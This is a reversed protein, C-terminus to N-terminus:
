RGEINLELSTVATTGDTQKATVQITSTGTPGFDTTIGCGIVGIMSGLLIIIVLVNGLASRLKRRQYFLWSGLLTSPLFFFGALVAKSELSRPQRLDATSTGPGRTTITLTTVVPATEGNMTFTAPSFNCATMQPLGSCSFTINGKYGDSPVLTAKVVGTQGLRLSLNTVNLSLSLATAKPQETIITQSSSFNQDGAYIAYITHDGETINAVTLAATGQANLPETGLVTAGDLFQVTGTPAGSTTSAVTATLTFSGGPAPNANSTKLAVTSPAKDVTLVGNLVTVAYNNLNAGTVVPVITYSGAISALTVTTTFTETLSDGNVTGVITGTFQPNATGYVRSVNQASVELPAPIVRLVTTQVAPQYDGTDAPTFTATLTYTGAPLTIAPSIVLTNGGAKQATYSFQGPVTSGQRTSATANLVSSLNTGYSIASAPTWTINVSAAVASGSLAITQKAYPNAANKVNDTFILSGSVSGSSEPAFSINLSCANGAALSFTPSSSSVSPCTSSGGSTFYASLSPNQGIAPVPFNLSANGLNMITVAQTQSTSGIATSSFVLSPPTTRDIALVRGNGADAIWVNGTADLAIGDPQRLTFSGTGAATTTGNTFIQLVQSSSRDTVYLTGAADLALKVPQQLAANGTDVISAAGINPVRLVRSNGTDAIYVTGSDDVAVGKPQSLTLGGTSLVSSNNGQAIKVIRNNGTDAIYVNGIGDVTIDNPQALVLSGTNLVSSTNRMVKVVRNNGTDAIYVIGAGDVALGVPGALTLGGMNMISVSGTQDIRLLKNGTNDAIYSNGAQDVAVGGPSALSQNGTNLASVTGPLFGIAPATGIGAAYVTNLIQHNSDALEISGMREGPMSPAFNVALSCTDGNQFTGSCTRGAAIQYDSNVFLPTSLSASSNFRYNLTLTQSCPSPMAQGGPCVNANGFDAAQTQVKVIQSVSSLQELVYFTGNSAMTVDYPYYLTQNGTTVVSAQGDPTIEVIHGNFTDAVFVNGQPDAAVGMPANLFLGGSNVQFARGDTTIEVIRSNGTDAIYLNGEDDVALGNCYSLTLGGTGVVSVSGSEHFELIKGNLSDAVFINHHADIAIGTPIGASYGGTDLVSATGDQAVKVIRFNYSDAIFVNGADDVAVGQPANLSGASLVSQSGDPMVKVIRNNGADAIYLTGTSDLAFGYSEPFGSAVVSAASVFSVTQAPLAQVFFICFTTLVILRVLASRFFLQGASAM